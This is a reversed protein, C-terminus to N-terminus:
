QRGYYPAGNEFMKIKLVNSAGTLQQVAYIFNDNSWTFAYINPGVLEPYLNEHTGTDPNYIFIADPSKGTALFIKGDASFTFSNVTVGSLWDAAAIDFVVEEDGLTEDQIPARYIKAEGSTQDFGSVYVNGNFVRISKLTLPFTKIKTVSQDTKVLYVDQLSTVWINGNADFDLDEPAAPLSAYDQETGDMSITAVKRLRGAAFTVYLVNDPGMKMGNAKLFSVDALLTTTGQADIKKIKKGDISVYVNGDNDVAIAYGMEENEALNGTISVAPLLKYNVPDSFLEAEHVAIKLELDSGTIKPARITLQTETAAIVLAKNGSFFVLNYEPVPSFNQGKIIIESIGAYASDAPIVQQIVPQPKTAADPDWLSSPYKNECNFLFAATALFLLSLFVINFRKM